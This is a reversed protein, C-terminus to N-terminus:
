SLSVRDIALTVTYKTHKKVLSLKVLASSWELGAQKLKGRMVTKPPHLRVWNLCFRRLVAINKNRVGGM